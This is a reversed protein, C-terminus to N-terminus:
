VFFDKNLTKLGCALKKIGFVFSIKHQRSDPGCLTLIEFKELPTRDGDAQWLGRDPKHGRAHHLLQLPLVSADRRQGDRRRYALAGVLQHGAGPILLGPRQHVRLRLPLLRELPPRM